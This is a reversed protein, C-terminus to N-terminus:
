VAVKAAAFQHRAIQVRLVTFADGWDNDINMSKDICRVNGQVGTGVGAAALTCQSFLNLNNATLNTFTFENGPGSAYAVSGDAQIEYEMDPQDYGLVFAEVFTGAQITQGAPWAPSIRFRGTSDVFQCGGFVGCFDANATVPFITRTTPDLFVPQYLYIATAYGGAIGRVISHPRVIGSPHLAPVMGFPLNTATM